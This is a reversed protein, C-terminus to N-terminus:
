GWMGGVEDLWPIPGCGAVSVLGSVMDVNILSVRTDHMSGGGELHVSIM